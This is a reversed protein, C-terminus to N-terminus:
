IDEDQIEAIIKKLRREDPRQSGIYKVVKQRVQGNKRESKVLYFYNRGKITKVRVFM